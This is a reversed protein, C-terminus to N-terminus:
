PYGYTAEYLFVRRIRNFDIAHQECHNCCFQPAITVGSRVGFDTPAKRLLTFRRKAIKRDLMRIGQFLLVKREVDDWEESGFAARLEVM